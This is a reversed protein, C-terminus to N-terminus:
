FDGLIIRFILMLKCDRPQEYLFFGADMKLIAPNPQASFCAPIGLTECLRLPHIGRLNLIM